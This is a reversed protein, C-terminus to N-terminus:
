SIDEYRRITDDGMADRLPQLQEEYNKWENLSDTYIPKRVQESSATRVARKNKYFELCGSEYELGIHDLLKRTMAETNQINKEYEMLFIKEPIMQNFHDM